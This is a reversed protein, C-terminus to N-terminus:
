EPQRSTQHGYGAPGSAWAYTWGTPLHLAADFTAFSASGGYITTAQGTIALQFQFSSGGGPVNFRLQLKPRGNGSTADVCHQTIDTITWCLEYLASGGATSTVDFQYTTELVVQVSDGQFGKPPTLIAEDYSNADGAAESYGGKKSIATTSASIVPPGIQAKSAANASGYKCSDAAKGTLDYGHKTSGTKSYHNGACAVASGYINDGFLQQGWATATWLLLGSVVLLPYKKLLGTNKSDRGCKGSEMASQQRVELNKM